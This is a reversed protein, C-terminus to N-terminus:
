QGMEKLMANFFRFEEGSSNAISMGNGSPDEITIHHGARRVQWGAPPRAPLRPDLPKQRKLEAELDEVKVRLQENESSLRPLENALMDRQQRIAGNEARFHDALRLAMTVTDETM